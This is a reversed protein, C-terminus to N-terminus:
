LFRKDILIACAHEILTGVAHLIMDEAEGKRYRLIDTIVFAITQHREIGDTLVTLPMIM